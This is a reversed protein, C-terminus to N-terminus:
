SSFKANIPIKHIVTPTQYLDRTKFNELRALNWKEFSLNVIGSLYLDKIDVHKKSLMNILFSAFLKKEFNDGRNGLHRLFVVAALRTKTTLIGKKLHKKAARLKM